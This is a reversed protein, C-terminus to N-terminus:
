FQKKSDILLTVPGDNTLTVQMDAGFVGEEVEDVLHRLELCFARVMQEAQIPEMASVFSPRRGKRCDGYLTFQSVVLVTGQVDKVSLNMKGDHDPFIRLGAIKEVLYKSDAESDGQGVGLLVLLGPRDARTRGVVNGNVEVEAKGLRQVVARM